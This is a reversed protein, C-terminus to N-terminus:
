WGDAYAGANERRGEETMAPSSGAIWGEFCGKDMRHIGPDLGPMVLTATGVDCM